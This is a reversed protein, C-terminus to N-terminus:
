CNLENLPNMKYTTTSMMMSWNTSWLQSRSSKQRSSAFLTKICTTILDKIVGEKEKKSGIKGKL